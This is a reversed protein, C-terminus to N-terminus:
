FRIICCIYILVFESFFPNRCLRNKNYPFTLLLFGNPKLLNFMGNIAEDANPIHELVSICNIFDFKKIMKSKRIDDKVIAFHYNCFNQWYGEKKDIATVKFGCNMLLSPLASTGTGVDLIENPYINYLHKMLFSYEIPRENIKNRSKVSKIELSFQHKLLLELFKCYLGYLLIGFIFRKINSLTSYFIKM